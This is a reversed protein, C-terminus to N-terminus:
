PHVEVPVVFFKSYSMKWDSRSKLIEIQKEAGERTQYYAITEDESSGAWDFPDTRGMVRYVIM